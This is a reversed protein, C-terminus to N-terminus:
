PWRHSATSAAKPSGAGDQNGSAPLFRARARIVQDHVALGTGIQLEFHEIDGLALEENIDVLRDLEVLALDELLQVLVFESRGAALGVSREDAIVLKRTMRLVDIKQALHAVHGRGRETREDRRGVGREKPEIVPLLQGLRAVQLLDELRDLVGFPLREAVGLIRPKDAQDHRAHQSSHGVSGVGLGDLFEAELLNIDM